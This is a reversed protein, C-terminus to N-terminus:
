MLTASPEIPAKGRRISTSAASRAAARRARVCAPSSTHSMLSPSALAQAIGHSGIRRGIGHGIVRKEAPREVDQLRLGAIARADVAYQQRCGHCCAIAIRHEVDAGTDAHHPQSHRPAKRMRPDAHDLAIRPEGLKRAPIDLAVVKGAPHAQELGVDGSGRAFEDREAQSGLGEIVHEGIRGEMDFPAAGRRLSGTFAPALAM